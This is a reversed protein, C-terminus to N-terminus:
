FASMLNPYKVENIGLIAGGFHLKDLPIDSVFTGNAMVTFADPYDM